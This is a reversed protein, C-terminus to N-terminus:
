SKTMKTSTIHSIAVVIGMLIAAATAIFSGFSNVITVVIPLRLALRSGFKGLLPSLRALVDSENESSDGFLFLFTPTKTIGLRTEWLNLM